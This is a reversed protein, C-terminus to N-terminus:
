GRCATDGEQRPVLGRAHGRAWQDAAMIGALDRAPLPQHAAMTDAVLPPIALFGIRGSLFAAVAVENAANMVAPMTGGAAAARYALGLAPFTEHDPEAFHLAGLAALNLPAVPAPWRDPYTLSYQIPHRMDPAAMHALMGGDITEVLCHVASEPHILVDIRDPPLGFLHMAEIVELGKNMLTASDVTIKAGMSWTPHQLAEAPSVNLLQERRYGHFPGGSATLIVRRVHAMAVGQLCQFLANHESDVPLLQIGARRVAAMFVPGAAVLAEKNALALTKRAEIAALAAPLGASGAIAAVVTDVDAVVAATILAEPGGLCTVGLAAFRPRWAAAVVADALAVLRPEFQRAQAYLTAADRHAALAVVKFRQPHAAAVALTSKGISGTSGLIALKKVIVQKPAM